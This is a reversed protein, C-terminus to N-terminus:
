LEDGAEEEQDLSVRSYLIAHAVLWETNQDERESEVFIVYTTWSSYQRDDRQSGPVDFLHCTTKKVKDAFVLRNQSTIFM